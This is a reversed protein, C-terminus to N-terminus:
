LVIAMALSFCRAREETEALETDTAMTNEITTIRDGYDTLAGEVTTERYPVAAARQALELTGETTGLFKNGVTDTYFLGAVAKKTRNIQDIQQKTYIIEAM